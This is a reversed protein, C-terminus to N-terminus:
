SRILQNPQYIGPKKDEEGLTLTWGLIRIIHMIVFKTLLYSGHLTVTILFDCALINRVLASRMTQGQPPPAYGPFKVQCAPMYHCLFLNIEFEGPYVWGGGRPSFKLRYMLNGAHFLATFPVCTCLTYHQAFELKKPM